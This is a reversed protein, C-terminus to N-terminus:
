IELVEGLIEGISGRIVLDAVQDRPTREQNIIILKDGKFYELFGAAPYVGLSTGGVILIDAKEIAIVAAEVVSLDLAEEYLTVGPRIIGGCQWCCPVAERNKLLEELGYELTCGMCYNHYISGHLEYVRKSGAKQHLGDVNQTIIAQLKGENELTALAYHARNPKANEHVLNGLYYRYFIEPHKLFFSHSLIVEPSYNEEKERNYLGQDSSRFDPINSETSTGAGGFFVIEKGKKIIEKLELVAEKRYKLDM